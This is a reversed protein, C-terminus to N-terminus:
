GKTTIADIEKVARFSVGNEDEKLMDQRVAKAMDIPDLEITTRPLEREAKLYCHQKILFWIKDALEKPSEEEVFRANEWGDYTGDCVYLVAGDIANRLEQETM